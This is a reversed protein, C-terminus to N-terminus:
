RRNRGRSRLKIGLFALVCAGTATGIVLIITRDLITALGAQKSPVGTLVFVTFYTVEVLGLGGPLFPILGALPPITLGLLITVIGPSYGVSRFVLYLRLLNLFWFTLSLFFIKAAAWRNSLIKRGFDYFRKVDCRISERKRRFLRSAIAGLVRSLTKEGIRHPFFYVITLLLVLISVSWATVVAARWSVTEFLALLLGFMFFSGSVPLELVYESVTSALSRSIPIQECKRMLYSRIIPDGGVYSLPTVNTVFINGLIVQWIRRLSVDVGSASLSTKWRLALCFTGLFYVGVALSFFYLNVTPLASAIKGLDVARTLTLFFCVSLLIAVSVWIYTRGSRV